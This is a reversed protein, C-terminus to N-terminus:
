AEAGMVLQYGPLLGVATFVWVAAALHDDWFATLATIVRFSVHMRMEAAIAFAPQAASVERAVADRQRLLYNFRTLEKRRRLCLRGGGDSDYPVSVTIMCVAWPAAALFDAVSIVEVIKNLLLVAGFLQVVRVLILAADLATNHM